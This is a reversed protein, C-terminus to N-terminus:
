DLPPAARWRARWEPAEWGEGGYITERAIKEGRLEWISVGYWQEGGDYRVRLEAVWLDGCGRMAAIEFAVEAPYQARWAKFNEVGEFREGNQPFELVADPHYIEHAVDPDKAYLHHKLAALARERDM